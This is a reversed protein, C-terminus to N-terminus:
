GYNSYLSNLGNYDPDDAENSINLDSWSQGNNGATSLWSGTQAAPPTQQIPIGSSVPSKAANALLAALDFGPMAPAQGGGGQNAAGLLARDLAGQNQAEIQALKDSQSEANMQAPSFYGTASSETSSNSQSRQIKALDMAQLLPNIAEDKGTTLQGRQGLLAAAIQGYARAQEAGMAGAAQSSETALKQSLLGQMAGASTGAGEISRQIAPKNAEMSKSLNQAMLDVADQFAGKKTYDALTTDIKSISADKAAKAEKMGATGGTNLQNILGKLLARTEPDEIGSFSSASSSSKSSQTSQLNAPAAPAYAPTTSVPQKYQTRGQPLFDWGTLVNAM